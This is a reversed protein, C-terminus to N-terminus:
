ATTGHDSRYRAVVQEAIHAALDLDIGDSHAYGGGRLRLLQGADAKANLIAVARKYAADYIVVPMFAAPTDRAVADAAQDVTYGAAFLQDLKAGAWTLYDDELKALGPDTYRVEIDDETM